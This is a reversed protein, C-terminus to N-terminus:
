DDDGDVRLLTVDAHRRKEAIRGLIYGVIGSIGMCIPVIYVGLFGFVQLQTFELDPNDPVFNPDRPWYLTLVVTLLLGVIAGLILFRGIRAQRMLRAPVERPQEVDDSLADANSAADATTKDGASADAPAVDGTAEDATAKDATAEDGTAQGASSEERPEPTAPSSEGDHQPATSDRDNEPMDEM